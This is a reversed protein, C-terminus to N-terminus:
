PNNIFITISELTQPVIKLLKEMEAETICICGESWSQSEGKHIFIGNKGTQEDPIYIAEWDKEVMRTKSCKIYKKAPIMNGGHEFSPTEILTKGDKIFKLVGNGSVLNERNIIITGM